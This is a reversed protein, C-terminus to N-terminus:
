ARPREAIEERLRDFVRKTVYMTGGLTVGQEDTVEFEEGTLPSKIKTGAEVQIVNMGGFMM